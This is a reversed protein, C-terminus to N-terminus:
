HEWHKSGRQTEKVAVPNGLQVQIADLGFLCITWLDITSAQGYQKNGFIRVGFTPGALLFSESIHACMEATPSVMMPGPDTIDCRKPLRVFGGLVPILGGPDWDPQLLTDMMALGLGNLVTWGEPDSSYDSLKRRTIMNIWYDCELLVENDGLPLEALHDPLCMMDELERMSSDLGSHTRPLHLLGGPGPGPGPESYPGDLFEPGESVKQTVRSESCGIVAIVTDNVRIVGSVTIGPTMMILHDPDVILIGMIVTDTAEWDHMEPVVPCVQDSLFLFFELVEGHNDALMAFKVDTPDYCVSGSLMDPWDNRSM